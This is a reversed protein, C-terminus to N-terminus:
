IKENNHKDHHDTILSRQYQQWQAPQLGLHNNASKLLLINKLQAEWTACHIITHVNSNLCKISQLKTYVYVYIKYESAVSFSMHSPKNLYNIELPRSGSWCAEIHWAKNYTYLNNGKIMRHSLQKYWDHGVRQSGMSQLGGPEERWPIRWALTSSHTAM